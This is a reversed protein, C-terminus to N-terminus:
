TEVPLPTVMYDATLHSHKECVFHKTHDPMFVALYRAKKRCWLRSDRTM